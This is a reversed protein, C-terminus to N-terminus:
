EVDGSPKKFIEDFLTKPPITEDDAAKQLGETLKALDSRTTMVFDNNDVDIDISATKVAPGINTLLLHLAKDIPNM